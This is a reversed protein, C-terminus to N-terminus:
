ALKGSVLEQSSSVSVNNIDHLSICKYMNISVSDGTRNENSSSNRKRKRYKEGEIKEVIGSYKKLISKM